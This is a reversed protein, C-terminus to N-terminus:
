PAMELTLSHMLHCLSVTSQKLELVNSVKWLLSSGCV